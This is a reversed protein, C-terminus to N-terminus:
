GKEWPASEYVEEGEEAIWCEQPSLAIVRLSVRFLLIMTIVIAALLGLWFALIGWGNPPVMMALAIAGFVIFWLTMILSTFGVFPAANVRGHRPPWFREKRARSPAHGLWIRVGNRYASWLALYSTPFSLSFGMAAAALAGGLVPSFGNNARAQGAARAVMVNLLGLVIMTLMAMIAVKWLGYTLYGWFCTQGRSRDPDVRRLWFATRVDAWGFKACAVLAALGPEATFEYLLWGALFLMPWSLHLRGFWGRHETGDEDRWEM